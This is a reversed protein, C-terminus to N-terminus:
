EERAALTLAWRRRERSICWWGRPIATTTGGPAEPHQSRPTDLHARGAHPPSHHPATTLRQSTHCWGRQPSGHVDNHHWHPCLLAVSRPVLQTGSPEMTGKRSAQPATHADYARAKLSTNLQALHHSGVARGPPSQQRSRSPAGAGARILKTPGVSLAGVQERGTLTARM